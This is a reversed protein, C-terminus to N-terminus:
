TNAQVLVIQASFMCFQCFLNKLSLYTGICAGIEEHM